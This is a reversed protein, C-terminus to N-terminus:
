SNMIETSIDWDEDEFYFKEGIKARTNGQLRWLALQIATTNDSDSDFNEYAYKSLRSAIARLENPMPRPVLPQGPSPNDLDFDACFAVFSVRINGKPPLVIFYSSGDSYYSGGSLYIQLAVMNQGSGSNQLYLGGELFIDIQKEDQTNNVLIGLVAMGSSNGNGNANLEVQGGDLLKQLQEAGTNSTQGFLSAYGLFVLIIGFFNRKM